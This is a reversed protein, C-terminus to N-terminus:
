QQSHIEYATNYHKYFVTAECIKRCNSSATKCKLQQKLVVVSNCKNVGSRVMVTAGKSHWETTQKMVMSGSSTFMQSTLERISDEKWERETNIDVM